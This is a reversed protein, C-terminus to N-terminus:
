REASHGAEEENAGSKDREKKGSRDCWEHAPERFTKPHEVHRAPTAHMWSRYRPGAAERDRQGETEGDEGEPDDVADGTM